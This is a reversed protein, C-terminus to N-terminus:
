RFHAYTRTIVSARFPTPRLIRHTRRIICTQLKYSIRYTYELSTVDNDYACSKDSRDAFEVCCVGMEMEFSRLTM